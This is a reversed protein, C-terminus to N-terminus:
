GPLVPLASQPSLAKVAPRLASYVVSRQADLERLAVRLAALDGAEAATGHDTLATGVDTMVRQANPAAWTILAPIVGQLHYGALSEPVDESTLDDLLENNAPSCNAAGYDAEGIAVSLDHSAGSNIAHLVTLSESVGAGCSGIDSTLTSLFGRLDTARQSHTPRHAIGVAVGIVLLVAGAAFLWRPSRRSPWGRARLPVYPPAVKSAM